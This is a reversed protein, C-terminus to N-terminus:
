DVTIQATDIISRYRGTEAAIFEDFSASNKYASEFGFGALRAKMEPSAMIKASAANLRANIAPPLNAPAWLGYWSYLEFDKLGAERLTPVEPLLPNRESGTVALAKLKGAKVFPLSSATPDLIAHVQGAIVDNLAPGGGKYLVIPVKLEKLDTENMWQAMGLHGASGFGSTAFSYNAPQAKVVSVFESVTKAPVQPNVGLILAGQALLSVATFDNVADYKITKAYLLSNINHISANLYLTYGDPAARAVSGAGILGSAGPRNDVVVPQKLEERLMDAYIRAVSDVSGGPQHPVVITISRTPYDAAPQAQASLATAMLACSTASWRFLSRISFHNM